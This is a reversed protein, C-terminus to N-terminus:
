TMREYRERLVRKLVKGASDGRPLEREFVIRKPVKFPALSERCFALLDDASPPLGPGERLVVAAWAAEGWRADAVPLVAADAVAPHRLLATEIETPSLKVGASNIADKTRGVIELYGDEDVRALDGSSFSGPLSPDRRGATEAADDVYTTDVAANRVWLEGVNGPAVPRGTGEERVLLSVGRLPRGVSRPKARAEGPTLISVGGTETSGYFDDLVEGFTREAAERTPTRLPAATSIVRRLARCPISARHAPDLAAIRELMYPVLLATTVVLRALTDLAEAADFKEALVLKGGLAVSLHLLATPASHYLPSAAYFTEGPGLDFGEALSELQGFPDVLAPAAGKPPGTTGSTYVVSVAEPPPSLPERPLPASAGGGDILDLFGPRAPLVLDRRLSPASRAIETAQWERGPAHILGVAGCSAAIRGLEEATLLPSVPVSQVQATRLAYVTVVAEAGNPLAVMVREGRRGPVLGRGILAAALGEMEAALGEYTLTRQPTVLAVRGAGMSRMFPGVGRWRASAISKAIALVVGASSRGGRRLLRYAAGVNFRMM